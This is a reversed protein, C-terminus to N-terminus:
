GVFVPKLDNSVYWSISIGLLDRTTTPTFNINEHCPFVKSDMCVYFFSLCLSLAPFHVCCPFVNSDLTPKVWCGSLKQISCAEVINVQRLHELQWILWTSHELKSTNTQPIRRKLTSAQWENAQSIFLIRKWSKHTTDVNFPRHKALVKDSNFACAIHKDHRRRKM